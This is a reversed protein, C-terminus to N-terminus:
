SNQNESTTNPSWYICGVLAIDNNKLKIFIQISESFSHESLVEVATAILGNRVYVIVGRKSNRM